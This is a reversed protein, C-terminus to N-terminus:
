WRSKGPSGHLKFSILSYVAYLALFDGFISVLQSLWLRRFAPIKLVQTMSLQPAPTAAPNMRPAEPLLSPSKSSARSQLIAYVAPVVTLTTLTAFIIGGIVARGLPASQETGGIAIPIMGAIMATATMLIARLRGQRAKSRRRKRTGAQRRHLEAFTVLLISNAVAIGIAMIAGM